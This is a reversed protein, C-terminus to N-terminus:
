EVRREKEEDKAKPYLSPAREGLITQRGPSLESLQLGSM